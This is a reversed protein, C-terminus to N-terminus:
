NGKEKQKKERLSEKILPLYSLLEEVEEQKKKLIAVERRLSDTEAELERSREPEGSYPNIFPELKAYEKEFMREYLQPTKDYDGGIAEIGNIHGMFFEVVRIDIGREPPSAETRFLKRFMHSVISNPGTSFGRTQMYYSFVRYFNIERYPTGRATIFLVKWSEEPLEGLREVIKEREVLWKRLEQIADRSIYTFYPHPNRKREMFEVKIREVGEKVLPVVADWMYNFKNLVAGIEMGSQIQILGMTRERQPLVGLIKLAEEM